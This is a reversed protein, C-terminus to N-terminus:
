TMYASWSLVIVLNRVEARILKLGLLAPRCSVLCSNVKPRKDSSQTMEVTPMFRLTYDADFEM